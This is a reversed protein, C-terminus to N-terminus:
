HAKRGIEAEYSELMILYRNGKENVAIKGARELKARLNDVLDIGLEPPLMRVAEDLVLAKLDIKNGQKPGIGQLLWTLNVEGWNALRVAMAMEPYGIGQLWKRVAKGTLQFKAALAAQRGRERPLKKDDCIENMRSAFAALLAKPDDDDFANMPGFTVM